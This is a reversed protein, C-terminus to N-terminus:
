GGTTITAPLAIAKVIIPPFHTGSDRFRGHRIFTTGSSTEAGSVYYTYSTGATLGTVAWSVVTMNVDTEDSSQAGADYTHTESIENHTTNDSLAFEVLKSSAYLQCSFVIEVNGSPPAVFAISVNTSGHYTQLVTLTADMAIYPDSGGTGDNAIRTYGLIMGAYSSNAASFETGSKKAIFNGSGSDLEIDVNADLSISGQIDVDLNGADGDSDSTALQTAGNANVDIMFFNNTDGSNGYVQLAGASYGFREDGNDQFTFSDAASDLIIGGDFDLTLDDDTGTGTISLHGDAAVNFYVYNDADSTLKLQNAPFVCNTIGYNNIIGGKPTINIYSQNKTTNIDLSGDTTIELDGSSPDPKINLTKLKGDETLFLNTPRGEIYVQQYDKGLGDKIKLEKSM